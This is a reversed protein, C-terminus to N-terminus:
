HVIEMCVLVTNQCLLLLMLVWRAEGPQVLLPETTGDDAATAAASAQKRELYFALPLCFSMGVFM